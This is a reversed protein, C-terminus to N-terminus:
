SEGGEPGPLSARWHTPQPRIPHKRYSWGVRKYFWGDHYWGRWYDGGAYGLEVAQMEDPLREEVPIWRLAELEFLAEYAKEHIFADAWNEDLAHILEEIKTM